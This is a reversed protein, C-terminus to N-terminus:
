KKVLRNTGFCAMERGPFGVDFVTELEHDSLIKITFRAKGGPVFNEIERTEFVLVDSTSLSDNLIYENMYGETHYQRFVVANEAKDFSIIGIDEHIEGEQNQQTPEFVSRHKIEMYQKNMLWAYEATIKSKANGFGEGNGEWKGALMEFRSLGTQAQITVAILLATILIIFKM